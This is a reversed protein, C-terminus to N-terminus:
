QHYIDPNNQAGQEISRINFHTASPFKVGLLGEPNSPTLSRGQYMIISTVRLIYWVTTASWIYRPRRRKVM